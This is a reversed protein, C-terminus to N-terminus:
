KRIRRCRIGAKYAKRVQEPTLETIGVDHGDVIVRYLKM